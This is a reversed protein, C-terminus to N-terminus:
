KAESLVEFVEGDGDFIYFRGTSSTVFATIFDIDGADPKFDEDRLAYASAGRVPGGTLESAPITWIHGRFRDGFILHGRLSAISGDYVPGLTLQVAEKSGLGYAIQLAPDILGAVFSGRRHTDGERYPWGFNVGLDNVGLQNIEGFIDPGQDGILIQNGHFTVGVPQALGKALVDYKTAAPAAGAYPDDVPRPRLLKGFLSADDQAPGGTADRANGSGTAYYIRKDPGFGIWLSPNDGGGTLVLSPQVSNWLGAEIQSRLFVRVFLNNDEDDFSAYLRGDGAFNPSVALGLLGRNGIPRPNGIGDIPGVRTYLTRTSTAPNFYYIAGSREGVFLRPDGPIVSIAVPQNFGSYIRRVAIGERSNTMSVVLPLSASSKGDTVSLTLEFENNGNSDSPNDYDPSASFSLRGDTSISFSSADAGGAISYRLSDGDADTATARYPLFSGEVITITSASTFVPASNPPLTVAGGGGGGGGCATLM